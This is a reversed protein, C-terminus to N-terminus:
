DLGELIAHWVAALRTAAFEQSFEDVAKNRANSGFTQSITSDGMIQIVSESLADPDRPPVLRGTWNDAVIESTGGVNTAVIPVGAATAELLVRGFPEQNAPHVLLEVEGLIEAIDERHGLLHLRDSLGAQHFQRSIEREFEVSEPKQSTREGIILFHLNPIQEVIKPAAAALVDHGKRLGIQGICAILRAGNSDHQSFLDPVDLPTATRRNKSNARSPDKLFVSPDRWPLGLEACLWGTAIRPRFRNLDVGNHVVVIRREDLGQDVHFGRTAQSVAILRQNRNLDAISAASLKIIDRLHGSTPANLGIALRGVIRSMALSNAHILQPQISKILGSLTAEIEEAPRRHGFTDHVSWAFLPIKRQKLADALRGEPPGIAFFDFDGSTQLFELISLMSREGGNLTSFEFVIAIRPRHM